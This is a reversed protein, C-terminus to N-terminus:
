EASEPWTQEGDSDYMRLVGDRDISLRPMGNVAVQENKRIADEADARFGHDTIVENLLDIRQLLRNIVEVQNQIQTRRREDLLVARDRVEDLMQRLEERSM